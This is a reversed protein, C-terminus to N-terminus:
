TPRSNVRKYYFYVPVGALLIFVGALQHTLKVCFFAAYGWIGITILALLCVLFNGRKGIRFPREMRPDTYRLAVVCGGYLMAVFAYMFGFVEALFTYADPFLQSRGLLSASVGIITLCWFQFWLAYKPVGSKECVEAFQPPFLKTKAMSYSVRAIGLMASFGCGVISAVVAATFANGCFPGGLYGAISPCSAQISTGAIVLSNKDASLAMPGVACVALCMALYIFTVTILTMFVARPVNKTADTTEAATCGTMELFSFGAMALMLVSAVNGWFDGSVVANTCTAINQFSAGPDLFVLAGFSIAMVFKLITFVNSISSATKVNQLNLITTFGFLSVIVLPAFWVPSASATGFIAGSMLNALGNSMCALGVIIAIWFLWGTLFGLMEGAGPVLRKLAYFKYVYPGGASPFMSALEMLILALPLAMAGAILWATISALSGARMLMPGHILWAMSGIISGVGLMWAGFSSIGIRLGDSKFPSSYSTSGSLSSQASPNSQGPAGLLEAVRGEIAPPSLPASSNSGHSRAVQQKAGSFTSTM